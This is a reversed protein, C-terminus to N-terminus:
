EFIRQANASSVGAGDDTIDIVAEDAEAKWRVRAKAQDGGHQRVNDLLSSLISDLTEANMAVKIGEPQEPMEVQMGIERHRRLTVPLVEALDSREDGVRMVDARALELLRRVLNELRQADAALINLFRVREESSMTAAHDRLLEVSGQIATLPTKFE